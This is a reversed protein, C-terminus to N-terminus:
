YSRMLSLSFLPILFSILFITKCFYDNAKSTLIIEISYEALVKLALKNVVMVDVFNTLGPYTLNTNYVTYVDQALTFLKNFSLQSGTM